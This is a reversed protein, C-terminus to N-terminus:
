IYGTMKHKALSAPTFVMHIESANSDFKETYYNLLDQHAQKEWQQSLMRLLYLYAIFM